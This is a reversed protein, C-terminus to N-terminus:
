FAPRLEAHCIMQEHHAWQATEPELRLKTIPKIITM